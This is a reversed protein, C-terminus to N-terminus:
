PKPNVIRFPIKVISWVALLISALLKYVLMCPSCVVALVGTKKKKQDKLTM